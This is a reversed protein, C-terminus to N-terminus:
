ASSRAAPGAVPPVLGSALHAFAEDLADVLSVRRGTAEWRFVTIRCATIAAAVVIAAYFEDVDTRAVVAETMVRELESVSALHRGLLTPHDHILRTRRTWWDAMRGVDGDPPVLVYRLAELPHEEAPRAILAARLLELFAPDFGVMADEKSAFYNFFTRPSVQAVEAIEEVTVSQPGREFALREAAAALARRTDRKKQDRRGAAPRATRGDVV